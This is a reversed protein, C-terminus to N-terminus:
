GGTAQTTPQQTPLAAAQTAPTAPATAPAQSQTAPAQTQTQTAPAQTTTSAQTGTVVAGNSSALSSFGAANPAHINALARGVNGDPTASLFGIAEPAPMIMGMGAALREIRQDDALSAVSQRLQENHSQLTSTSQLSRGISAGLKLVEVQMAVIGALLVGLLPIWARGRVIRDLLSHDPLSRVFAAVRSSPRTRTSPAPHARLPGSVRRPAKPAPSERLARRHPKSRAASGTAAPTM